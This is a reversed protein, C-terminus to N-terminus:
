VRALTLKTARSTSGIGFGLQSKPWRTVACSDTANKNSLPQRRTSESWDSKSLQGDVSAFGEARVPTSGTCWGQSPQTRVVLRVRGLADFSVWLSESPLALTRDCSAVPETSHQLVVTDGSVQAWKYSAIPRAEPDHSGTASLFVQVGNPMAGEPSVSIAAVPPLNQQAVREFSPCGALLIALAALRKM